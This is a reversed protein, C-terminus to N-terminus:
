FEVISKNKLLDSNKSFFIYHEHKKLLEEIFTNQNVCDPIAFGVVSKCDKIRRACHKFSAIFNEKESQSNPIKDAFPLIFAYIKKDELSKLFDRLKALFSEDYNEEDLGIQSWAIKICLIKPSESLNSNKLFDDKLCESSDLEFNNKADFEKGDLFYLKNNESKFQKELKM